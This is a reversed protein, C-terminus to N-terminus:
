MDQLLDIVQDALRGEPDIELYKNLAERARDTQGLSRHIRGKVYWARAHRPKLALAGEVATLARDPQKLALLAEAQLTLTPANAERQLALTSYTLVASYDRRSKARKAEDVLEEYTAEGSAALAASSAVSAEGAPPTGAAGSGSASPSSSASPPAGGPADGSPAGTEAAALAEGAQSTAPENPAPATGPLGAMSPAEVPSATPADGSGSAIPMREGPSSEVVAASLPAPAPTSEERSSLWWFLMGFSAGVLTAGAVTVIFTRAFAPGSAARIMSSVRPESRPLTEARQPLVHAAVEARAVPRPSEETRSRAPEVVEAAASLEQDLEVSPMRRSTRAQGRAATAVQAALQGSTSRAGNRPESRSEGQAAARASEDAPATPRLVAGFEGSVMAVEAGRSSKIGPNSREEGLPIPDPLPTKDTDLEVDAPKPVGPETDPRENRPQAAAMEASARLARTAAEAGAAAGREDGPKPAGANPSGLFEGRPVPLAVGVAAWAGVRRSAPLLPTPPEDIAIESDDAM